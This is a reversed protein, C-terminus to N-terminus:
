DGRYATTDAASGMPPTKAADQAAAIEALTMGSALAAAGGVKKYRRAYDSMTDVWKQDVLQSHALPEGKLTPPIKGAFYYDPRGTYKHLPKGSAESMKALSGMVDPFVLEPPAILGLGGVNQGAIGHSYTGHRDSPRVTQQPDIRFISYGSSGMPAHLLEPDTAAHRVAAVDPFGLDQFRRTDMIQAFSTRPTRPAEQFYRQLTNRRANIGPFDPAVERMATNFEERASKSIGKTDKLVDVLPSWVHHSYDGGTGSLATPVTLVDDGTARAIEDSKNALGQALTQASMWVDPDNGKVDAFRGGGGMKVREPLRYDEIQHLYTNPVTTDGVTPLLRKGLLDAPEVTKGLMPARQTHVSYYEDIPKPLKVGSIGHWFRSGPGAEATDSGLVAGAIAPVARGAKGLAKIPNLATAAGLVDDPALMDGAMDAMRMGRVVPGIDAPGQQGSLGRAVDASRQVAQQQREDRYQAQQARDYADFPAYTTPAYQDTGALGGMRHADAVSPQDPWRSDVSYNPTEAPRDLYSLGFPNYRDAM